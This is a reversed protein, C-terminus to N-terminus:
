EKGSWCYTCLKDPSIGISEVLDDLRHYKLSTFNLRKRIEEIMEHYNQSDPDAYDALSVPGLLSEAPGLLVPAQLAEAAELIGAMMELTVCNFLGVAYGKKRTDRLIESLTVLM